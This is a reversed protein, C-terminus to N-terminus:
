IKFTYDNYTSFELSFVILVVGCAVCGTTKGSGAQNAWRAQAGHTRPLEGTIREGHWPLPVVVLLMMGALAM